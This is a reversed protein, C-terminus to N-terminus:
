PINRNFSFFGCAFLSLASCVTFPSKRGIVVSTQPGSVGFRAGRALAGAGLRSRAETANQTRSETAIFVM